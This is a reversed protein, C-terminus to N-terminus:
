STSPPSSVFALFQAGLESIGDPRNMHGGDQLGRTLPQRRTLLGDVTLQDIARQVIPRMDPQSPFFHESTLTALDRWVGSEPMDELRFEPLDSAFRLVHVHLPDYASMQRLFSERRSADWDGLVTGNLLANRLLKWKEESSTARMAPVVTYIGSIFEESSLRRVAEDVSFRAIASELDARLEELLRENRRQAASGFARNITVALPGGVIPILSAIAEMVAATTDEVGDKIREPDV